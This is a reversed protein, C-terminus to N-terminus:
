KIALQKRNHRGFLYGVAGIGLQLFVWLLAFWTNKGPADSYAVRFTQVDNNHITGAWITLAIPWQKYALAAYKSVKFLQRVLPNLEGALGKKGILLVTTHWDLYQGAVAVATALLFLIIVLDQLMNGGLNEVLNRIAIERQRNASLLQARKFAAHGAKRIKRRWSDCGADSQCAV